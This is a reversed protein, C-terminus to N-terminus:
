SALQQSSLGVILKGSQVDRQARAQVQRDYREFAEKTEPRLKAAHALQACLILLLVAVRPMGAIRSVFAPNCNGGSAPAITKQPFLRLLCSWRRWRRRM